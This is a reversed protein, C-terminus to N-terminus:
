REELVDPLLALLEPDRRYLERAQAIREEITSGPKMGVRECTHPFDHSTPYRTVCWELTIISQRLFQIVEHDGLGDFADHDRFNMHQLWSLLEPDSM